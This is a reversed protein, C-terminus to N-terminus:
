KRQQRAHRELADHWQELTQCDRVILRVRVDQLLEGREIWLGFQAGSAKGPTDPRSINISVFNHALVLVALVGLGARSRIVMGLLLFLFPLMPLLYAREIPYRFYMVQYALIFALSLAILGRRPGAWQAALIRARFLLIGWVMMAAGIGWFYINKYFFRGARLKLTWLQEDGIMPRLFALTRNAWLFSPIYCVITITMAILCAIIVRGRLDRMTLLAYALIIIVGPIAGLRYGLALGLAIGAIIVRRRLVCILGIMLLSLSWFYDITFTSAIWYIPQLGMVLALPQRWPISAARALKLFGATVCLSCAVSGLNCLISGGIRNLALVTLEHLPYGPHRSPEYRHETVLWRGTDLVRYSDNDAGYGLVTFPFYCLFLVALVWRDGRELSLREYDIM